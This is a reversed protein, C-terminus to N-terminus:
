ADEYDIYEGENKSIKKETNEKTKYVTTEGEKPQQSNYQRSSGSPNYYQRKRRPRTFSQLLKFAFYVVLFILILKLM